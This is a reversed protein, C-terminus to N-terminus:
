VFQETEVRKMHEIQACLNQKRRAEFNEAFNTSLFTRVMELAMFQGLIYAGLCLVNCDNILRCYRAAFVSEAVAAYVGKFKGATLAMGMGTGCILVARDAEGSQVKKSAVAAVESHPMPNDADLTGVDDVEYGTRVLEEKIAEKLSLGGM